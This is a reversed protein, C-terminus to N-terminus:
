KAARLIKPKIELHRCYRPLISEKRLSAMCGNSVVSFFASRRAPNEVGQLVTHFVSIKVVWQNTSSFIDARDYDKIGRKHTGPLAENCKKANRFTDCHLM